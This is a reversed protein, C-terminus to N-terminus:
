HHLEHSNRCQHDLRVRGGKEVPIVQPDDLTRENALYADYDVDNLDAKALGSEASRLMEMKDSANARGPAMGGMKYLAGKSTTGKLRALVEEPTSFTFDNLM